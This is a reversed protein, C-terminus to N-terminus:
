AGSHMRGIHYFHASGCSSIKKGGNPRFRKTENNETEKTSQHMGCTHPAHTQEHDLLSIVMTCTVVYRQSTRKSEKKFTVEKREAVIMQCQNVVADFSKINHSRSAEGIQREVAPKLKWQGGRKGLLPKLGQKIRRIYRYM